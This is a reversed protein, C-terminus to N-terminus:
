IFNHIILPFCQIHTLTLRYRIILKMFIQYIILCFILIVIFFHNLWDISGSNYRKFLWYERLARSKTKLLLSIKYQIQIKPYGKMQESILLILCEITKRSNLEPSCYDGSMRVPWWKFSIFSLSSLPTISLILSLKWNTPSHLGSASQLPFSSLRQNLRQHSRGSNRDYSFSQFCSGFVALYPMVAFIHSDRSFLHHSCLIDNGRCKYLLQVVRHFVILRCM